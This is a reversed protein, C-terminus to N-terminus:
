RIFGNSIAAISSVSVPKCTRQCPSRHAMDITEKPCYQATGPPLNRGSLVIKTTSHISEPKRLPSQDIRSIYSTCKFQCSCETPPRAKQAQHRFHMVTSISLSSGKTCSDSFLLIQTDHRITVHRSRFRAMRPLELKGLGPSTRTRSVAFRCANFCM